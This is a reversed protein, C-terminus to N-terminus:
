ITKTFYQRGKQCVVQAKEKCNIANLGTNLHHVCSSRLWSGTRTEWIAVRNGDHIVLNGDDQLVARPDEGSSTTTDSSWTAARHADYLVLNGDDQMIVHYPSEGKGRTDSDWLATEGDYLVLNGDSQM